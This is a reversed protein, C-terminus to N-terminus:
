VTANLRASTFVSIKITDSTVAANRSLSELTGIRREVLINRYDMLFLLDCLKPINDTHIFLTKNVMEAHPTM